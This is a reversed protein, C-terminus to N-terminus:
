KFFSNKILEKKLISYLTDNKVMFFLNTNNKEFNIIKDNKLKNYYIEIKKIQWINKTSINQIKNKFFEFNDRSIGITRNVSLIKKKRHYIHVNIKKNILNKALSLSTIGNGIICVNM